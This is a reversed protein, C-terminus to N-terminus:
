VVRKWKPHSWPRSVLGALVLALQSPLHKKSLQRLLEQSHSHAHAFKPRAVFTHNHANKKQNVWTIHTHTPKQIRRRPIGFVRLSDSFFSFLRNGLLNKYFIIKYILLNTFKTFQKKVALIEIKREDTKEKEPKL